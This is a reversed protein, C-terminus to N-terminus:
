RARHLLPGVIRSLFESRPMGVPKAKAVRLVQIVATHATECASWQVTANPTALLLQLLVEADDVPCDGLLEITGATSLLVTM